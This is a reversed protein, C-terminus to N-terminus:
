LRLVGSRSGVGDFLCTNDAPVYQKTIVKIAEQAVIGGMLASINHLEGGQANVLDTIIKQLQEKLQSYEPEELFSGAETIILDMFTKAISTVKTITKEAPDDFLSASHPAQMNTGTAVETDAALQHTNAYKDYAMFAVYLPMLSSPDMLAMKAAKARDELAWEKGEPRTFHPQGGRVLKIYGASKCFADIEEPATQFPRKLQADLKHVTSKVETADARAKSKYINQLAIYDASKAKM